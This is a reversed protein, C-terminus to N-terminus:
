EEPPLMVTDIVFVTANATPINGCLVTADNVTVDDGSGSITITEGQITELEGAELIADRDHREPVVHYTLISTLQEQDALVENLTEEGLADFADDTPAFVTYEANPDNLTDVLGAEAVATALTQLLPNNSAATAVPDAVMGDLSGPDSPDTPVASCAEGFVDDVTTVGDGMAMDDDDMDMGDDMTTDDEMTPVADQVTDTTGNEDDTGCASMVLALASAASLVAIKKTVRM